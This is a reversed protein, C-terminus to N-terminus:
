WWVSGCGACRRRHGRTERQLVAAPRDDRMEVLPVLGCAITMGACAASAAVIGPLDPAFVLQAADKDFFLLPVLNTTWTALLM